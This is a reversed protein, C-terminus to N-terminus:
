NLGISQTGVTFRGSLLAEGRQRDGQVHDRPVAVLKLPQKSRKLRSLLSGRALRTVVAREAASGKSSM